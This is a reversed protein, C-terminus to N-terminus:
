INLESVAPSQYWSTVGHNKKKFCMKLGVKDFVVCRFVKLEFGNM